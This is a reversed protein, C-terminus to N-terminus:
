KTKLLSEVLDLNEFGADYHFRIEPSFKLNIESTVFQRIPYKSSELAELIEDSSLATNFPLFYCNSIKLDASINVKTITLPCSALRLDLGKGRRFCDVLAAFILRSAKLQRQSQEKERVSIKFNNKKM